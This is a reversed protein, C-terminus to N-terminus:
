GLQELDDGPIIRCRNQPFDGCAEFSKRAHVSDAIWIAKNEPNARFYDPLIKSPNALNFFVALRPDRSAASSARWFADNVVPKFLRLGGRLIVPFLSKQSPYFILSRDAMGIQLNQIYIDSKLAREGKPPELFNLWRAQPFVSPVALAAGGSSATFIIDPNFGSDKIALFSSEAYRAARLANEFIDLRSEKKAPAPFRKLIVRKVGDFLTKQLASARNSAYLVEHGREALWEALPILPGPFHYSLFLLKM